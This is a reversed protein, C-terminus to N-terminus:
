RMALHVCIVDCEVACLSEVSFCDIVCEDEM